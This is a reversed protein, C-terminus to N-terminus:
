LGGRQLGLSVRGTEVAGSSPGLSPPPLSTRPSIPGPVYVRDGRRCKVLRDLASQQTLTAAVSRLVLAQPQSRHLRTTRRGSAPTLNAPVRVRRASPPTVVRYDGPIARLLGYVMAHSHQINGTGGGHIGTHM